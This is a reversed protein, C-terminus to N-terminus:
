ISRENKFSIVSPHTPQNKGAYYTEINLRTKSVSQNTQSGCATVSVVLMFIMFIKMLLKNM